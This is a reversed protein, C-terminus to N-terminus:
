TLPKGLYRATPSDRYHGFRGVPVYGASEYLGIAEPQATGTELVMVDAGAARASAELEGLLLRSWGRGRAAPVVYMRKVEATTSGGLATVDPRFRWGGMGVPEGTEGRVALLFAGHPAVFHSPSLPTEDPGGYRAVFELQVEAVLRQVLPDTFPTPRIVCTTDM